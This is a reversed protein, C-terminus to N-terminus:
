TSTSVIVTVSERMEGTDILPHDGGKLAITLPANPVAWSPSQDIRREILAKMGNGMGQLAGEADTEGDLLRIVQLGTGAAIEVMNADVASRLAPRAPANSTGFENFTARAIVDDNTPSQFGINALGTGLIQLEQAIRNLGMDKVVVSM